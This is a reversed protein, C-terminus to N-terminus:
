RACVRRRSVAWLLVPLGLVVGAQAEPIPVERITFGRYIDMGLWDDPTDLSFSFSVTGGPPVVGGTWTLSDWDKLVKSFM